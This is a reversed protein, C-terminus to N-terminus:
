SLWPCRRSDAALSVDVNCARASGSRAPPVSAAPVPLQKGQNGVSSSCENPVARRLSALRIRLLGVLDSGTMRPAEGRALRKSVYRFMTEGASEVFAGFIRGTRSALRLELQGTASEVTTNPLTLHRSQWPRSASPADSSAVTQIFRRRGWM